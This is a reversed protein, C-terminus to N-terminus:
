LCRLVGNSGIRRSFAPGLSNDLQVVVAHTLDMVEGETKDFSRGVLVLERVFSSQVLAYASSIGVRGCGIIAVGNVHTAASSDTSHSTM